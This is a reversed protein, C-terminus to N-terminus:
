TNFFEVKMKPCRKDGSQHDNKVNCAQCFIMEKNKRVSCDKFTHAGGCHKCVQSTEIKCEKDFHGFGQCM